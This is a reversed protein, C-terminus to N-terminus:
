CRDTLLSNHTCKSTMYDISNTSLYLVAIESKLTFATKINFFTALQKISWSIKVM